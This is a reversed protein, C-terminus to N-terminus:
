KERRKEERVNAGGGGRCRSRPYGEGWNVASRFELKLGGGRKKFGRRTPSFERVDALRSGSCIEGAVSEGEGRSTPKKISSRPIFAAPLLATLSGAATSRALTFDSVAVIARLSNRAYVSACVDACLTLFPAILRAPRQYVRPRSV